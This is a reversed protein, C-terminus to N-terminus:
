INRPYYKGHHHELPSYSNHNLVTTFIELRTNYGRMTVTSFSDEPMGWVIAVDVEVKEAGMESQMVISSGPQTWPLDTMILRSEQKSSAILKDIKKSSFHM